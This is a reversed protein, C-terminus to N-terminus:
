TGMGPSCRWLAPQATRTNETISDSRKIWSTDDKFNRNFEIKYEIQTQLLFHSKHPHLFYIARLSCFQECAQADVEPPPVIWHFHWGIILRVVVVFHWDLHTWRLNNHNSRKITILIEIKSENVSSQYGHERNRTPLKVLGLGPHAVPLQHAFRCFQRQQWRCAQLM